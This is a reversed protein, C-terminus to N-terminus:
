HKLTVTSEINNVFGTWKGWSIWLHSQLMSSFVALVCTADGVASMFAECVSFSKCSTPLCPQLVWRFDAVPSQKGKWGELVCLTWRSTPWPWLPITLKQQLWSMAPAEWTGLMVLLSWWLKPKAQSAQQHVPHLALASAMRLSSILWVGWRDGVRQTEGLVSDPAVNGGLGEHPGFHEAEGRGIIWSLLCLIWWSKPEWWSPTPLPLYKSVCRKYLVMRLYPENNSKQPETHCIFYRSVLHWVTLSSSVWFSLSPRQRLRWISGRLRVHLVQRECSNTSRCGSSSPCSPCWGLGLMGCGHM